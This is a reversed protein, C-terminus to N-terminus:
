TALSGYVRVVMAAVCHHVLADMVGISVMFGSMFDDRTCYRRGLTVLQGDGPVVPEGTLTNGSFPAWDFFIRGGGCHLSSAGGV